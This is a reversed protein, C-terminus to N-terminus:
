LLIAGEPFLRLFSTDPNQKHVMSDPIVSISFSTDEFTQDLTKGFGMIQPDHYIVIKVEAAVIVEKNMRLYGLM